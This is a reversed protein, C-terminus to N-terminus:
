ADRPEKLALALRHSHGREGDVEMMKVAGSALLAKVTPTGVQSYAGWSRRLWWRYPPSNDRLIACAGGGLADLVRQQAPSHKM